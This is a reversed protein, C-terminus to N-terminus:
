VEILTGLSVRPQLARIQFVQWLAILCIRALTKIRRIRWQLDDFITAYLKVAFSVPM